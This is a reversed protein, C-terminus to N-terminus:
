GNWNCVWGSKSAFQYDRSCMLDVHDGVKVLSARTDDVGYSIGDIVLVFRQSMTKTADDSILRNGVQTVAGTVHYYRHYSAKYPWFAFLSIGVVIILFFAILGGLYVKDGDGQYLGYGALWIVAILLLASLIIAIPLGLTVGLTWRDPTVAALNM